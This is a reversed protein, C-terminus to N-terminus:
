RRIEFGTFDEHDESWQSQVERVRALPPGDWLRDEFETLPERDGVVLTEVCGDARNRVWGTLGLEMAADRAWARFWVGQVKGCVTARLMTM